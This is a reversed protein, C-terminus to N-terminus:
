GFNGFMDAGGSWAIVEKLVLELDERRTADAQFTHAEGGIAEISQRVQDSKEQNRGVIAVKAGHGALALAMSGGLTSNGGIIVATKGTLNFLNM